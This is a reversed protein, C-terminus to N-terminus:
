KKDNGGNNLVMDILSIFDNDNIISITIDSGLVQIDANKSM